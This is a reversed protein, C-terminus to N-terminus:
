INFRTNKRIFIRIPNDRRKSEYGEINEQNTELAWLENSSFSNLSMGGFCILKTGLTTSAIGWCSKPILGVMDVIEWRWIGVNLAAIENVTSQHFSAYLADNRGGVIVLYKGCLGMSHCYRAIPAKGVADIKIIKLLNKDSRSFKKIPQIMYLDNLVKGSDNMGGFIYIGCNKRHFDEDYIIRM